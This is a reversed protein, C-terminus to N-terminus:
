SSTQLLTIALKVFDAETVIGVLKRDDDTVPLCGLKNTWLLMGADAIPTDERVTVLDRQMVDRAFVQQRFHETKRVSAPELDSAAIRLLDRHTILGVLKGEDVVPLHRFRYRRMGEEVGTLNDEEFLTVVERTMIDKVLKPKDM